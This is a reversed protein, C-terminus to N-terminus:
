LYLNNLTDMRALLPEKGLTTGLVLLAVERLAIRAALVVTIKVKMKM